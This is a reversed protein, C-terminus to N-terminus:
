SYNKYFNCERCVGWVAYIYLQEQIWYSIYMSAHEIKHTQIIKINHRGKMRKTTLM